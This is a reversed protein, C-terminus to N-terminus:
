IEEGFQLYTSISETLIDESVFDIFKKSEVM